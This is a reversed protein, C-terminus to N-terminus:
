RLKKFFINMLNKIEGEMVGSLIEFNHNLRGDEGLHYLSDCAGAKNDSIGYIVKKIRSNIIAGTCMVCPELTVYLICNDLRWSELSESAATIAIMEAHATADNLIEILNHGKGIIKNEHIVVAGVPIENKEYAKLAELFAYKMWKKHTKNNIM